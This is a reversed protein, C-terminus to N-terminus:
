ANEEVDTFGPLKIILGSLSNEYPATSNLDFDSYLLTESGLIEKQMVKCTLSAPTKKSAININEPRVGMILPKGKHYDKDLKIIDLADIVVKQNNGFIIEAKDGDKFVNATFFNMSPSGIFGAVFKNLPYRYLNTPTDIQQVFGDKMVVIRDGMTM